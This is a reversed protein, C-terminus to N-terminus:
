EVTGRRLPQQLPVRHVVPTARAGARLPSQLVLRPLLDSLAVVHRLLVTQERTDTVRRRWIYGEYAESKHTRPGAARATRPDCEIRPRRQGPPEMRVTM